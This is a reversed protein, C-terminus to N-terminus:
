SEYAPAKLIMWWFMWSASFAVPMTSPSDAREVLVRLRGREAGELAGLLAEEAVQEGGHLAGRQDAGDLRVEVLAAGGHHLQDGGALRQHLAADGLDRRGFPVVEGDVERGPLVHEVEQLVGERHLQLLGELVIVAVEHRPGDEVGVVVRHEALLGQRLAVRQDLLEARQRRHLRRQVLDDVAEPVVGHGLDGPARAPHEPDLVRLAFAEREARPGRGGVEGLGGGEHVPALADQHERHRAADPAAVVGIEAAGVGLAADVVQQLGAPPGVLRDLPQAPGVARVLRGRRQEAGDGGVHLALAPEDGGDRAPEVRRPAM